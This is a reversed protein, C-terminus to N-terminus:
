QVSLRDDIHSDYQERSRHQLNMSPDFFHTFLEYFQTLSKTDQQNLRENAWNKIPTWSGIVIIVGQWVNSKRCLFLSLCVCVFVTIEDPVSMLIVGSQNVETGITSHKEITWILTSQGSGSSFGTAEGDSRM